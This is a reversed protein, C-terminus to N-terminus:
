CDIVGCFLQVPNIAFQFNDLVAIHVSRVDPFYDVLSNPLRRGDSQKLVMHVPNISFRDEFCVLKCAFINCNEHILSERRLVQVYVMWLSLWLTLM